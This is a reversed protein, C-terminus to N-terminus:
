NIPGWPCWVIKGPQNANPNVPYNQIQIENWNFFAVHGDAFLVNGGGNHRLTFRKWNTKPQAINYNYGTATYHSMDAGPHESIFTSIELGTTALEGAQDTKESMIVQSSPDRYQGMKCIPVFAGGTPVDDLNSNWAYSCYFPVQFPKTASGLVKSTDVCWIYWYNSNVPWISDVDSANTDQTVPMGDSPCVYISNQGPGPPLIKNNSAACTTLIQYYTQNNSMMSPLANFWCYGDDIGKELSDDPPVAGDLYGIYDNTSNSGGHTKTPLVGNNQDCYMQLAVGWERLNSQCAVLQSQQRAKNLAPLLISILLAIIGIVVLLEVLTFGGARAFVCRAFTQRDTKEM